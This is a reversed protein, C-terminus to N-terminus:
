SEGAYDAEDADIPEDSEDEEDEDEETQPAAIAGVGPIKGIDQEEVFTKSSPDYSMSKDVSEFRNMGGNLKLLVEKHAANRTKSGVLWCYGNGDARGIAFCYHLLWAFSGAEASNFWEPKNSPAKKVAETSLQHLILLCTEHKAALSKLGDMADQLEIREPRERRTSAATMRLILPWMWDIVVIAPKKGADAKRKIYLDIESINDGASARDVLDVYGRCLKAAHKLKKQYKEAIDSFKRDRLKDSHVKAVFSLLRPQLEKAPQEYGFYAVYQRRRAMAGTIQLAMLTKGGGSPGLIGYCETPTIGGNLLLDVPTVGTPNRPDFDMPNDDLNFPDITPMQDVQLQHHQQDLQAKLEHRSTQQMALLKLSEIYVGDFFANLLRIGYDVNWPEEIFGYIENILKGVGAYYVSDVYGGKQMAQIAVDRTAHLPPTTGHEQWYLRAALWVYVFELQTAENFHLPELKPVALEAVAPCRIAYTLLRVLLERSSLGSLVDDLESM